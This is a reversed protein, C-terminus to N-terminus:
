KIKIYKKMCFGVVSDKVSVRYFDDTSEEEYVRIKTDKDIVTEVDSEVTPEKRINLRECNTVFGTKYRPKSPNKQEEKETEDLVDTVDASVVEQKQSMKNYNRNAM